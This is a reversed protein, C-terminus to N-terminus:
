LYASFVNNSFHMLSGAAAQVAAAQHVAELAAQAAAPRVVQLSAAQLVAKAEAQVMPGPCSQFRSRGKILIVAFGASKRSKRGDQTIM